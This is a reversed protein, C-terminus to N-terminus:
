QEPEAMRNRKFNLATGLEMNSPGCHVKILHLEICEWCAAITKRWPLVRIPRRKALLAFTSTVNCSLLHLLWLVGASQKHTVQPCFGKLFQKDVEAVYINAHM